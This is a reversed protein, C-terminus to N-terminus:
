SMIRATCSIVLFIAIPLCFLIKIAIPILITIGDSNDSNFIFKVFYQMYYMTFKKGKVIFMKLVFRFILILTVSLAILLGFILLNKKLKKIKERLISNEKRQNEEEENQVYTAKTTYSNRVNAENLSMLEQDTSQESIQEKIKNM